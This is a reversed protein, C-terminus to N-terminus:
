VTAAMNSKVVKEGLNKSPQVIIISSPQKQMYKVEKQIKFVYLALWISYLSTKLNTKVCIM